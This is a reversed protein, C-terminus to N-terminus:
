PVVFWCEGKEERSGDTAQFKIKAVTVPICKQRGSIHCLTAQFNFLLDKVMLCNVCIDGNNHIPPVLVLPNGADNKM